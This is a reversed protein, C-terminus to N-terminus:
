TILTHIEDIEEPSVIVKFYINFLYFYVRKTEWVIINKHMQYSLHEAHLM